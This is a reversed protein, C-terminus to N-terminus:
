AQTKRLARPPLIWELVGGDKTLRVGCCGGKKLEVRASKGLAALARVNDMLNPQHGVVIVHRAKSSDLLTRLEKTSAGPRLADAVIVEIEGGYAKAVRQATELARVLPSSYIAAAKPFIRALGRAIEKMRKRGEPTLARDEDNQDPVAEETIGHRLLVVFKENDPAAKSTSM